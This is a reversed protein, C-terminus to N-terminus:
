VNEAELEQSLFKFASIWRMLVTSFRMNSVEVRLIELGFACLDVDDSKLAHAVSLFYVCERHRYPTCHSDCRTHYYTSTLEAHESREESVRGSELMDVVFPSLAIAGTGVALSKRSM